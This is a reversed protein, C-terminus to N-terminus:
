CLYLLALIVSVVSILLVTLVVNVSPPTHAALHRRGSGRMGAERMSRPTRGEIKRIMNEYDSM